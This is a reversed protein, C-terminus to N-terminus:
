VFCFSGSQNFPKMGVSTPSILVIKLELQEAGAAVGPLRREAEAVGPALQALDPRALRPAREHVGVHERVRDLVPPRVPHDEKAVHLQAPRRPLLAVRVEHDGELPRPRARVLADVGAADLELADLGAERQRVDRRVEAVRPAPPVDLDGPDHALHLPVVEVVVLVVEAAAGGPPAEVEARVQLDRPVDEAARHRVSVPHLVVPVVRRHVDADLVVEGVRAPGHHALRQRDESEHGEEVEVPVLSPRARDAIREHVDVVAVRLAVVGELFALVREGVHEVV